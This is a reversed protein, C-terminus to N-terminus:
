PTLHGKQGPQPGHRQGERICAETKWSKSSKQLGRDPAPSRSFVTADGWTYIVSTMIGKVKISQGNFLNCFWTTATPSDLSLNPYCVWGSKLFWKRQGRCAGRTRGLSAPVNQFAPGFWLILVLGASISLTHRNKASYVPLAFVLKEGSIWWIFGELVLM